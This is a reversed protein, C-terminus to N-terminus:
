THIQGLSHSGLWWGDRQHGPRMPVPPVVEFKAIMSYDGDMMVTTANGLSVVTGVDGPWNVFRYGEDPAAVQSVLM